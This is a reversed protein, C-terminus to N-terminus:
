GRSRRISRLDFADGEKIRDGKSGKRREKKEEKEEERIVVQEM